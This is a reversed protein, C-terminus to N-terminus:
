AGLIEVRVFSLEDTFDFSDVSDVRCDCRDDSRRNDGNKEEKSNIHDIPLFLFDEKFTVSM